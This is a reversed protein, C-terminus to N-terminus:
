LLTFLINVQLAPNIAGLNPPGIMPHLPRPNKYSHYFGSRIHVAHQQPPIDSLMSPINPVPLAVLETTTMVSETAKSLQKEQEELHKKTAELELELKRKKLELLERTKARLTENM